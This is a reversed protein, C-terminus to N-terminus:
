KISSLKIFVNGLKRDSIGRLHVVIQHALHVLVVPQHIVGVELELIEGAVALSELCILIASLNPAPM